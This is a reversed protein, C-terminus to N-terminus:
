YPTNGDFNYVGSNPFTLFLLLRVTFFRSARIIGARFIENKYRPVISRESSKAIDESVAKVKALL